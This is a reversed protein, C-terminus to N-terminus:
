RVAGSQALAAALMNRIAAFRPNGVARETIHVRDSTTRVGRLQDPHTVILAARARWIPLAATACDQGDRLNLAVIVDGNM